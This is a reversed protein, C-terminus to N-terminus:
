YLVQLMDYVNRVRLLGGKAPDPASFAGRGAGVVTSCVRGVERIWRINDQVRSVEAETRPFRKACIVGRM